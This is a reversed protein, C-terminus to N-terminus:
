EGAEERLLSEMTEIITYRKGARMRPLHKEAEELTNAEITVVTEVIYTYLKMKEGELTLIKGLSARPWRGARALQCSTL